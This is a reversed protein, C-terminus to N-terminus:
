LSVGPKIKLDIEQTFKYLYSIESNIQFTKQLKIKSDVPSTIECSYKPTSKGILATTEGIKERFCDKLSRGDGALLLDGVDGQSPYIDICIQRTTEPTDTESITQCEGDRTAFYINARSPIALQGFGKNEIWLSLIGSGGDNTDYVIPQNPVEMFTKVPGEGAVGEIGSVGASKGQTVLRELEQKNIFTIRYTTPTFYTYQAMIGIRCPTQVKVDRAKLSWEAVATSQPFMKEITCYYAGSIQDKQMSVEKGMTCFSSRTDVDFLECTNYLVIKVNGKPGLEPNQQNKIFARLTVTQGSRVEASPIAQLNQIVIVDHTEEQINPGFFNPIFPIDITTGPITCGSVLVLVMIAPLLLLKM